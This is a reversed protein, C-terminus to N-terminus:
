IHLQRYQRREEDSARRVSILRIKSDRITWVVAVILEDVDGISELRVEGTRNLLLHLAKRGDFLNRASNFDIGHKRINTFRKAEDWEFEPM